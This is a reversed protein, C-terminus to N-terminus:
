AGQGGAAHLVIVNERVRLLGLRERGSWAFKTVAVRSSRELAQRLLEYPKAPQLYYGEGSRLVDVSEWPM